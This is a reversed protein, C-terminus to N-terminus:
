ESAPRPWAGLRRCAQVQKLGLQHGDEPIHHAQMSCLRFTRFCDESCIQQAKLGLIDTSWVSSSAATAEPTVSGDVSHTRWPSCRQSVPDHERHRKFEQPVKGLGGGGGGVECLASARVRSLRASRMARHVLCPSESQLLMWSADLNESRPVRKKIVIIRFDIRGSSARMKRYALGTTLASSGNGLKPTGLSAVLAM